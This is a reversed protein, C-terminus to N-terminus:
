NGELEQGRDVLQGSLQLCRLSFYLIVLYAKEPSGLDVWFVSKNPKELSPGAM